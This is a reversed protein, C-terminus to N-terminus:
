RGPTALYDALLNLNAVAVRMDLIPGDYRQFRLSGDTVWGGREHLAEIVARVQRDGPRRRSSTASPREPPAAALQRYQREIQDLRSGIKFGYHTPLDADDYTLQYDRTFYLPRNTQLEYFRALQGDAIQSQRLYNLAPEIPALYKRDGTRRYVDLLAQMAGQSEGGSIAPPEFKRAWCPQMHQNYQQAWAPQPAPMQALLLFDALRLAADRYKSDQYVEESLFLVSLVDPVLEDNLTCRYWYQQHGPYTRPWDDPYGARQDPDGQPQFDPSWVQPFGGNPFQAALLKDLAFTTMEHITADQFQLAQDLQILFRLCSQTKDDDLSSNDRRKRGEPEVRYAHRARQEPDFDVGDNWGGSRLQGQRLAEAAALAAELFEKEGTAVYLRAFAGGMSPTGPPQIWITNANTKGEGERLQLDASYQWVYGGRVAVQNFYFATARKAEELAEDRLAVPHGQGSSESITLTFCAMFYVALILAPRM